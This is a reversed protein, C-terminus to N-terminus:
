QKPIYLKSENKENMHITINSPANDITDFHEVDSTGFSLQLKHGEPITYSIPLFNFEAEFIEGEKVPEMDQIHFSHYVGIDKYARKLPDSKKRHMARFWGETIYTVKGSPSVDELYVFLQTDTSDCSLNLKISPHGTIELASTLKDTNFLVMKKNQEARNTYIIKGDRFVPTLSRWRTGKGTTLDYICDYKIKGSTQLSSSLSHDANLNFTTEEQELSWENTEIYEEKGINYYTFVPDNNVGNEIGQVHYDLFRLMESYVDFKLKNSNINPSINENPGHDWPGILVKKTNKTNWYGKIASQSLAADYWGSIRYIPVNSAEVEKMRTHISFDDNCMDGLSSVKENRAELEYIGEFVDFNQSHEKVAASLLNKNKDQQVPKAGSIISNGLKHFVKYDGTDLAEITKQWADIFPAERLGGPFNMDEYLDFISSRPIAAKLSPHHSTLAFEATTGTYSMGTTATKGNSWNQSVIWDLIDAMDEVEDNGFEMKRYGFSAGSGRLDVCVCAYGKRTFFDIEKKKVQGFGLPKILSFPFKLDFQRTYRMFYILTPFSDQQSTSKPIHCDIAINTGDKVEIYQSTYLSKKYNNTNYGQYKGLSSIKENGKAM